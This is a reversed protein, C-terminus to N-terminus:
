GLRLTTLIQQVDAEPAGDPVGADTVVVLVVTAGQISAALVRVVGTPSGCPGVSAPKATVKAAMADLGSITRLPTPPEPTLQPPKEADDRYGLDAWREASDTAAAGLDKMSSSTLVALGRDASPKSPCFGNRFTASGSGAVIARGSEFGIIVSDPKVEWSPPSDFSANRKDSHVPQWGPVLAGPQASPRTSESTSPAPATGAVPTGPM